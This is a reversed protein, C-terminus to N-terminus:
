AGTNFSDCGFFPSSFTDMCNRYSSSPKGHSTSPTTIFARALRRGLFTLALADHDISHARVQWGPVDKMIDKERALAAEQRRYADRDGEALLMPVLHIRSWMKERKLERILFSTRKLLPTTQSHTDFLGRRSTARGLGTCGTAM